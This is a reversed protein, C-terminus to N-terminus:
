DVFLYTPWEDSCCRKRITPSSLRVSEQAHRLNNYTIGDISVRTGQRESVPKNWGKGRRALGSKRTREKHYTNPASLNKLRMSDICRQKNIREARINAAIEGTSPPGEDVYYFEAYKRSRIRRIPSWGLSEKADTLTDYVRDICFCPRAAYHNKGQGPRNRLRELYTQRQEPTYGETVFGGVGVRKINYYRVQLHQPKIMQLWREEEALLLKRDNITLIWLIKRRFDHPRKRMARLLRTSSGKYPDNLSGMHSGIYSMKRKSDRWLYVFGYYSKTM